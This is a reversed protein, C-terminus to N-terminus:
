SLWALFSQDFGLEDIMWWTLGEGPSPVARLLRLYSWCRRLWRAARAEPDLSRALQAILFLVIAMSGLFVVGAAFRFTRYVRHEGHLDVFALSGGLIWANPPAREVDGARADRCRRRLRASPAPATRAVARKRCCCRGRPVDIPDGTCACLSACVSGGEAAGHADARRSVAARQHGRRHSQRRHSRGTRADADHHEDDQARGRSGTRGRADIRPVAEVTMADAVVDQLVYGIPAILAAIVFWTEIPLAARMHAPHAILGYMIVLSVAILAAGLVLLAAKYRWMLDVLHGLPMKLVYPIGAWFGLAALFEASLGLYEKVFFTGVIGTLASVGAAVYVMLPPLYSLRMERALSLINRDVWTLLSM